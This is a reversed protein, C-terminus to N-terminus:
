GRAHGAEEQNANGAAPEPPGHRLRHPVLWYALQKLAKGDLTGRNVTRHLWQEDAALADSVAQVRAFRWRIKM